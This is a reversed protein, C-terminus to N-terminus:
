ALTASRDILTALEAVRLPKAFLYGQFRGCGRERLFEWQERTEVGEAVVELRLHRAVAIVTEVIAADNADVTIDTVFSRDIKLEDIPLRKLYTLSSYGTGFDDISFRVGERKLAEMKRVTDTVNEIFIGETLELTVRSLPVAARSAAAVVRAVFDHQAFQRVSVNVSVGLRAPERGAALKAFERLAAEMVWDGITAILGTEEAIGIFQAPPVFGRERQDWRLLAEIGVVGGDADVQPQCVVHFEDRAIAQRLDKELALRLEAAAQMRPEYFSIQNRGEAKARYMATDARKLLDDSTESAEPFLTIGISPSVYYLHGALEYPENLTELCKEAVMRAQAAAPEAAPGLNALLIVFEDGGLRAVTDARRLHLQLRRGVEALLADGVAHGLADNINKFHDLDVFLLAGRYDNRTALALAQDMRNTLLRRNPLGTLEDYYALREIRAEITKRETMDLMTSVYHTIAGAENRVTSVTEWLPVEAGSKHRAWIEGHWGGGLIEHKLHEFFREDYRQSNWLRPTHGLVEEATYGLIHTFARNVRLVVGHPDTVFIGEVTEFAHAALRLDAVQRRRVLEHSARTAFIRLLTLTQDPNVLPRRSMVALLGVVTGADDRLPVAAYGELALEWLGPAGAFLSRVDRPYVADGEALVGECPTGAIALVLDADVQGDLYRAPVNFHARSDDLLGIFCADMGLARAAEAVLRAMFREDGEGAVAEATMHLAELSRQRDIIRGLTQAVTLLFGAADGDAAATPEIGVALFGLPHDEVRVAVCLHPGLGSAGGEHLAPRVALAEGCCCRGSLPSADTAAGKCAVLRLGGAPQDDLYISGARRLGSGSAGLVIDLAAGLTADLASEHIPLGLLRTLTAQQSLNRRTVEIARREETVDICAGCYGLLGGREDLRPLATDRIWRYEGDARRLRYEVTIPAKRELAARYDAWHQARDDPHLGTEWGFSLEDELSRGTFELWRRNYFLGGMDTGDLWIMVPALDAIQRFRAESERMAAEALLRAQDRQLNDLAFSLDRVVEELLSRVDADFYGAPAYALLVLHPEGGRRVPLAACDLPPAGPSAFAALPAVATCNDRVAAALPSGPAADAVQELEAVGPWVLGCDVLPAYAGGGLCRVLAGRELGTFRVLLECARGLVAETAGERVIVQNIESLATYFDRQRRLAEEARKRETIDKAIATFYRAGDLMVESVTVAVPLLTGDRRRIEIERTVGLVSSDDGDRFAAVRAAHAGRESEPLLVDLSEGLIEAAPHGFAEEAARNFAVIRHAADITIVPDPASELLARHRAESAQLWAHSDAVRQRMDEFAAALTRLESLDSDPLRADYEGHGLREAAAAFAHLPGTIAHRLVVVLAITAALAAIWLALGARLLGEGLARRAPALDYQLYVLGPPSTEDAQGLLPSRAIAAGIVSGSGAHVFVHGGPTAAARAIDFGPLVSAARRGVWGAHTAAQVVGAGDVAAVGRLPMDRSLGDLYRELETNSERHQESELFSRLGRLIGRSQEAAADALKAALLTNAHVLLVAMLLTAVVLVLIPLRLSLAGLRTARVAAVGRAPARAAEAPASGPM